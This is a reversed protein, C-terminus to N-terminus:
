ARFFYKNDILSKAIGEYFADTLMKILQWFKKYLVIVIYSVSSALDHAM